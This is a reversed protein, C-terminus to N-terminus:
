PNEEMVKIDGNLTRMKIAAKGGGRALMDIKTAEASTPRPVPPDDFDNTMRGYATEAVLHFAAESPLFAWANGQTINAQISFTGREWWEYSVTLNGRKLALDTDTFCNHVIMRGDGLKAHVSRGRMGDVLVEGANLSLQSINTTAPVVITCDVTGSRDFFAWRPKPPIKVDLSVSTPQVSVDIAIRELQMRSYAKKTAQLRIENINSGYVLIAGDGNQISLDTNPQISYLQEFTEELVRDGEPRCGALSLLLWVAIRQVGPAKSFPSRV